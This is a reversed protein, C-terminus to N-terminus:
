SLFSFRFLVFNGATRVHDASKESGKGLNEVNGESTRKLSSICFEPCQVILRVLHFHLFWRKDVNQEELIEDLNKVWYNYQTLMILASPLIVLAGKGLFLYILHDKSTGKLGPQKITLSRYIRRTDGNYFEGNQM